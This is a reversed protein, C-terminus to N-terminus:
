VAVALSTVKGSTEFSLALVPQAAKIVGDAVITTNNQVPRTPRPTPTTTTEATDATEAVPQFDGSRQVCGIVLLLLIPFLLLKQKNM